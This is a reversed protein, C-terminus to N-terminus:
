EAGAFAAMLNPAVDTSTQAPVVMGVRSDCCHTYITRWLQAQDHRAAMESVRGVIVLLHKARSLSVNLIRTDSTFKSLYCPSLVM